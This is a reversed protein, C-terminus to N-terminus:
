GMVDVLYRVGHQLDTWTTGIILVTDFTAMEWHKIEDRKMINLNMSVFYLTAELLFLGLCCGCTSFTSESFGAYVYFVIQWSKTEM